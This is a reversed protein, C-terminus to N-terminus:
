IFHNIRGLYLDLALPYKQLCNDLFSTSSITSIIVILPPGEWKKEDQQAVRTPAHPDLSTLSKPRHNNVKKEERRKEEGRKEARISLGLM